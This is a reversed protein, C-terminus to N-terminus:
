VHFWLCKHLTRSGTARASSYHCKILVCFRVFFYPSIYAIRSMLKFQVLAVQEPEIPGLPAPLVVVIRM